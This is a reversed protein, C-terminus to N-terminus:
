RQQLLQYGGAIGLAQNWAKNVLPFNVLRTGILLNILRFNSLRYNM